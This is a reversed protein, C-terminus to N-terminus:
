EKRVEKLHDALEDFMTVTHNSTENKTPKLELKQEIRQLLM